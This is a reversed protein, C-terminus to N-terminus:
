DEVLAYACRLRVSWDVVRAIDRRASWRASLLTAECLTRQLQCHSVIICGDVHALTFSPVSLARVTGGPRYPDYVTNFYYPTSPTLLNEIHHTIPNSGAAYM